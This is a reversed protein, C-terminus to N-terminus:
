GKGDQFPINYEAGLVSLVHSRAWVGDLMIIDPFVSFRGNLDKGEAELEKREKLGRVM